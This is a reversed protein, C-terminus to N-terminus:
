WGNKDVNGGFGHTLSASLEVNEPFIGGCDDTKEIRMNRFFKEVNM